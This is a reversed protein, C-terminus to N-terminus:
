TSPTTTPRSATAAPATRRRGLTAAIMQTVTGSATKATATRMDTHTRLGLGSPLLSSRTPCGLEELEDVNKPLLKARGPDV